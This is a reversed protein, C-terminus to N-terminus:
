KLIIELKFNSQNKKDKDYNVIEIKDIWKKARLQELFVNFANNTNTIGSVELKRDNIEIQKDKNITQSIPLIEMKKLVINDPLINGIENIYFSLFNTNLFGAMQIVELKRNKESNLLNYENQYNTTNSVLNSIKHIRNTAFGKFIFNLLITAAFLLLGIKTIADFQKKYKFDVTNQAITNNAYYNSLKDSPFYHNLGVSFLFLELTNQEGEDEILITNITSSEVKTSSVYDTNDYNLVIDNVQLSEERFVKKFLLNTSLVGIVIDIVYYKKEMFYSLFDDIKDKRSFATFIETETKYKTVYYDDSNDNLILDNDGKSYVIGSGTFAIILPINEDIFDMSEINAIDKKFAIVQLEGKEKTLIAYFFERSDKNNIVGIVGVKDNLDLKIKIKDIM